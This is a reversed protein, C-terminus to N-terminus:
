ADCDRRSLAVSTRQLNRNRQACTRDPIRLPMKEGVSARKAWTALRLGLSLSPGLFPFVVRSGGLGRHIVGRMARAHSRDRSAGNAEAPM